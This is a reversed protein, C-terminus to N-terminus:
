CDRDVAAFGLFGQKPDFIEVRSKNQESRALVQRAQVRCAADKFNELGVLNCLSDNMM